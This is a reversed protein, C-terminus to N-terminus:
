AMIETAAEIDEAAAKAVAAAAEQYSPPAM